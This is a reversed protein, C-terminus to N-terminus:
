LCLIQDLNLLNMAQSISNKSEKLPKLHKLKIHRAKLDESARRVRNNGGSEVFLRTQKLRAAADIADQNANSVSLLSQIDAVADADTCVSILARLCAEQSPRARQQTADDLLNELRDVLERVDCVLNSFKAKGSEVWRIKKVINNKAKIIDAKVQLYDPQIAQFQAGQSGANDDETHNNAECETINLHYLRELKEASTLLEELRHLQHEAQLWNLRADPTQDHDNQLGVRCGWRVLRFQEWALKAQLAEGDVGM